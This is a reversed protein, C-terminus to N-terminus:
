PRRPPSAPGAAAAPSPQSPEKLTRGWAFCAAQQERLFTDPDDVAYGLWEAAAAFGKLTASNMRGTLANQQNVVIASLMPLDQQRAWRALLILHENMAYRVRDWSLNQARAVDGYSLFRRQSAAWRVLAMTRHLDLPSTRRRALEIVARGFVATQLAGRRRCDEQLTELGADDLLAVDIETPETM